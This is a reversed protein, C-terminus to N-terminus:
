LEALIFDPIHTFDNSTFKSTPIGPQEACLSHCQPNETERITETIASSSSQIPEAAPTDSAECPAVNSTLSVGTDGSALDAQHGHQGASGRESLMAELHM